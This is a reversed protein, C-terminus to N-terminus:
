FVVQVEVVESVVVDVKEKPSEVLVLVTFKVEL